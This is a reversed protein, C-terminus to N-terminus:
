GLHGAERLEVHSEVAGCGLGSRVGPAERVRIERRHLAPWEHREVARGDAHTVASGLIFLDDPRGTM